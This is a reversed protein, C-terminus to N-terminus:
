SCGATTRGGATWAEDEIDDSSRNAHDLDFSSVLYGAPEGASTTM